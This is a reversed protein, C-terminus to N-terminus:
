SACHAAYWAFYEAEHAYWYDIDHGGPWLHIEADIKHAYIVDANRLPDGFGVDIWVPATYHPPNHVIDHRAYDEANDFAGPASDGARMWLAPSHAGIACFHGHAGLMLAGYGGMSIGLAGIRQGDVDARSRLYNVAGVFDRAEIPGFTLLHRSRGSEGHGRLDFLLVHFGADHLSRTVPLFDVDRDDIPVKGAVNGLRNWMWGHVFVITPADRAGAARVELRTGDHSAIGHIAEPPLLSLVEHATPDDRRRSRLIARGVAGSAVAGAALGAGGRELKRQLM